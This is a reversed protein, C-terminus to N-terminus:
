EVARREIMVFRGGAVNTIFPGRHSPPQLPNRLHAYERHDYLIGISRACFSRASVPLESSLLEASTSM